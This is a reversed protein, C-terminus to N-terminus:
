KDPLKDYESKRKTIETKFQKEDGLVSRYTEIILRMRPTIRFKLTTKDTAPDKELQENYDLMDTYHKAWGFNNYRAEPLEKPVRPPNLGASIGNKVAQVDVANKYGTEPTGMATPNASLASGTPSSPRGGGKAPSPFFTENLNFGVFNSISENEKEPLPKSPDLNLIEVYAAADILQAPKLKKSEPTEPFGLTTASLAPSSGASAGAAPSAGSLALM